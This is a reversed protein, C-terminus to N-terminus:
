ASQDEIVPTAGNARDAHLGFAAVIALHAIQTPSLAIGAQLAKHLCELGERRILCAIGPFESHFKFM